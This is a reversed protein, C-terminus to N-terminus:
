THVSWGHQPVLNVSFTPAGGDGGRDHEGHFILGGNFWFKWKDEDKKRTEMNFGFSYPAFDKYLRCRVDGYEGHDAYTDLYDYEKQFQESMGISKAFEEVERLYDEMDQTELVIM